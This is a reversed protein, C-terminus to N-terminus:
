AEESEYKGILSFDTFQTIDFTLNKDSALTRYAQRSNNVKLTLSTKGDKSSPEEIKQSFMGKCSLMLLSALLIATGTIYKIKKNM